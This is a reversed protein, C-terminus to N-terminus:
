WSLHEKAWM